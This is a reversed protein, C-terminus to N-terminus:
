EHLLNRMKRSRKYNNEPAVKTANRNELKKASNKHRKEARSALTNANDVSCVPHLKTKFLSKMAFLRHEYCPDEESFWEPCIKKSDQIAKQEILNLIGYKERIQHINGEFTLLNATVIERFKASPRKLITVKYSMKSEYERCEIYSDDADGTAEPAKLM